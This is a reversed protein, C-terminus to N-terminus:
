SEGKVEQWEAEMEALTAQHIRIGIVQGSTMGEDEASQAFV